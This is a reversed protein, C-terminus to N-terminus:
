TASRGERKGKNNFIQFFSEQRMWHIRIITVRGEAGGLEKGDCRGKSDIGKTDRMLFSSEQKM